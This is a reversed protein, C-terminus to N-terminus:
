KVQNADLSDFIPKEKRIALAVLLSFVVSMITSYVMSILQKALGFQDEEQIRKLADAKADDPTNFKEMMAMTKAIIQEKMYAGLDPDIVFFLLLTFVLVILSRIFTIGFVMYFANKFPLFGENRQRYKVAVVIPYAIILALFLLGILWDALSKRDIFYLLYYLITQIFGLM